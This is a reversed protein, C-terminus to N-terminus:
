KKPKRVKVAIFHSHNPDLTAFFNPLPYYGAGKGDLVDYNYKRFIEKLGFLTFIIYHRLGLRTDEADSGHQDAGFHPSMPNGIHYRKSIHQSFAQWGIILAFINHWSSLNETSVVAYGGPKLIRYVETIFNDVDILHEITQNSHVVDFTNDKFPLKKTLDGQVAKIGKKKAIKVFQQVFDLGHIDDTKIKEGVKLSWDGNNCGLDVIKAKKNVSCLALINNNNQTHADHWLKIFLKKFM